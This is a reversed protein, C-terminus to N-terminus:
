IWEVRVGRVKASDGSDANDKTFSERRDYLGSAKAQLERAKVVTAAMSALASPAGPTQGLSRRLRDMDDQLASIDASLAYTHESLTVGGNSLADERLFALYEKASPDARLTQWYRARAGRDAPSDGCPINAVHTAVAAHVDGTRFVKDLVAIQEDTLM